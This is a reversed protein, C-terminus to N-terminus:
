ETEVRHVVPGFDCDELRVKIREGSKLRSSFGSAFNIGRAFIFPQDGHHKCLANWAQDPTIKM